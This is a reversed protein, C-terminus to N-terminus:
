YAIARALVLMKLLPEQQLAPAFDLQVAQKMRRLTALEFGGPDCIRTEGEATESGWSAFCHGTRDLLSRAHLTGVHHEDADCVDWRPGIRWIRRVTFVLSEDETEYVSFLPAIFWRFWASPAIQQRIRGLPVGSYPDVIEQETRLRDGGQYAERILLVQNELM